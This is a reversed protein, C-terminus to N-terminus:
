FSQTYKFEWPFAIRFLLLDTLTQYMDGISLTNEEPGLRTLSWVSFLAM